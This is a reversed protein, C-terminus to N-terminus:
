ARRFFVQNGTEEYEAKSVYQEPKAIKGFFSAGMFVANKRSPPDHVVIPVRSLGKRDGKFLREVYLEKIDHEVRSSLGPIMTTGGSLWINAALPKQIDLACSRISKFIMEALGDEEVEILEPKFLIEPATFRERGIIITDGNPLVYEKDLVCTDKAM